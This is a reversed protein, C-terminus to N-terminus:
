CSVKDKQFRDRFLKALSPEDNGTTASSNTTAYKIDFLIGEKATILKYSKKLAMCTTFVSILEDIIQSCYIANADESQRHLSASQKVM